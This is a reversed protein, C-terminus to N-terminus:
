DDHHYMYYLYNYLGEPTEVNFSRREGTATEQVNIVKDDNPSNTVWWWFIGDEDQCESIECLLEEYATKLGSMYNFVPFDFYPRIADHFKRQEEYAAKYAKLYHLFKEKSVLM